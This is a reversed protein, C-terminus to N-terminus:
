ANGRSTELRSLLEAPTVALVRSTGFHEPDRTVILDAKERIAVSILITDEYDGNSIALADRCDSALVDLLEFVSFLNAVIGRAREDVREEGRFLKRAFFHIDAAQKATFCATIQRNAAAYFVAVSDAFWPERKQLVDLIVNTDLIVKM